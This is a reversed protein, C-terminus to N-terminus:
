ACWVTAVRWVVPVNCVVYLCYCVFVRMQQEYNNSNNNNEYNIYKPQTPPPPPMFTTKVKGREAELIFVRRDFFIHQSVKTIFVLVLTWSSPSPSRIGSSVSDVGSHNKM